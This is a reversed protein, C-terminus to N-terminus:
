QITLSVAGSSTVQHTAPPTTSSSGSSGGSGCGISLAATAMLVLGLCATLWIGRAALKRRMFGLPLLLIPLLIFGSAAGTVTEIFVVTIQYTGTSTTSSTAITVTNTASSYSCTAGAPLNLCTVSVSTVSSPVTVPYSATSGAAVTETTSTIIPATSGSSTSDVEFQWANSTGGGPAPTQVTIAITGAATIDAAPVQATLQTASVYTTTLASAGWYVTSSAIFGSGNVTLPLVAGGANTFAPSIGSIAPVPNTPISITFAATAVASTSYGTATAIAELTETSSVPIASTYVTSSTTPTTGNTTYYITAGATTDSITVTQAATYTGAVPSFTPTATAGIVNVVISQTVQTAAAYNANGAQNTAVVVTGVGTITLTSGSVTGPGSVVSFTVALGSTSSASLTIPSVGYTVPTTPATFTITQSFQNVVISQTVQMAASYNANGAQNAAVVVTGVGTITLTSGSVTGPGSVVSYIVANGSAGGTAVLTIPSVGYTVPSTPTTFTITQSFQNVVISQTVQMAASYNGNGAQNAAVVVTGAGTITLAAGSVTGPGSVVSFTVANGSAGGTAVLSIPSVGYVVPSTPATFTITQPETAVTFTATQTGLPYNGAAAQSVQLVVTGAGTLTVTSGSITAPGSVVSYTMAGSSNSTASVTFPADGYTHNPVTFTITLATVKRVRYNCTDAIYLSDLRDLTLGSPTCLEAMTASGGDGSYGEYGNGAITTITGNGAAVMRVAYPPNAIYLNGAGDVAVGMPDVEASTAPGGDGSAGTNGNGAVTTITGTNATVLRVRGHGTDAIYLDGSSDVAVDTPHLLTASTALGGDGLLSGTAGGAVTSINGSSASVMRIRNNYQDAIYLNGASDFALGEPGNLYANLAPGGDGQYGPGAGGAYQSITGTQATVKLIVCIEDDSIYLNGASDLAVHTPHWLYASTALGGNISYIGQYGLTGAVVSINGTGASVMWVVRNVPDAIYTNGSADVAVGDLSGFQVSTAPGGVGSSGSLGSGAVTGILKTPPPTITYTSSVVSSPLYGPAVAIARLTASGTVTISGHYATQQATSPTSGDFTVYIEAGPTTDTISVTQSSSYTGASVSFSPAAATTAPPLMSATVKRIRHSGSEAIYVNGTSDLTVSRPSCVGADNAPGGDGGFSTCTGVSGAYGIESTFSSQVGAVTNIIGTSATVERVAMNSTDAIYLNGAGDVAVGYPLNLLANTALGGDGSLFGNTQLASLRNYWFGAVTNIVGTSATVERIVDNQTDAIYLNGASDVAIGEPSSLEANTASGTDGWYGAMGNGAVTTIIGTSATVKRIRNALTAIYLNGASDLAIGTPHYLYASTAPGGDGLTYAHANGAYTTIIGTGAAVMRVLSNGSDAIYLNGASDMALGAPNSIQASSAPGNDGSYGAIGTGVITTITGTKADVRRVQNNGTDSIYLNGSSDMVTAWPANLSAATAPGGDGAYGWSNNGAITYIFSSMSKSLIYQASVPTSMAFGYAAVAVLTESTSVTIAGTYLSSSATPITGNTTYYIVTNPTADSLTVTQASSYVSPALSIVPPLPAPLNLTYTATAVTSSVYGTTAAIAQITNFHASVPIPGTYATSTSSPTSGDTTFYITAGPTSDTISVTQYTTYTGAAPSFVPAAAQASLSTTGSVSANDHSDGAYSADVLHPAAGMLSIGNATASVTETPETLLISITRSAFLDIQVLDPVGDGNMGAVVTIGRTAPNTLSLTFTGDGNGLLLTNSGYYFDNLLMDPRGDGNFDAVMIPGPELGGFAPSTAAQTFTGDGNGLMVTVSASSNWETSIALDLKGDGNFDAVAMAYAEGVLSLPSGLQAFTGDGKGILITVARGYESSVALDPIGDGNFDGIVVESSDTNIPLNASSATTFTGDGNGLLVTVIAGGYNAFAMDLKGDGNFDGVALTNANGVTIPSGAAQTFTGDGNGLLIAVQGTDTLVLDEKGDGNFDGVLISGYPVSFSPGTVTRYTGDGNGLFVTVSFPAYCNLVALDPIGDGNFDGAAEACFSSSSPSQANVWTLGASGTGLTASGVVGNSYSTDLFSVTGSPALVGGTETVTATLSYNGASGSQAITTTTPYPVSAAANVTLTSVASSSLTGGGNAVLVAKYTHVGAGPVFKFVATGSGTLDAAGLLHIDSCYSVSADCFNVQGSTLPTTGVKVTATLTVVSGAAVSTAAAGGSTVTLTTTTAPPIGWLLMTTGSVSVNYNGDGSYSADVMHQGAGQLSVPATASATETPKTLLVSMTGNYSSAVAVDPRGDGDFDAPAVSTPYTGVSLSSPTASFTGDGNGLLVIVAGNPSYNTLVLDPKGDGNFDAIAISVLCGINATSTTTQTFTGDGNGLFVMLNTSYFNNSANGVVLDLKGDGNLDAVVVSGSDSSSSVPLSPAATFTGDGKGLLVSATSGDAIVLDPIGDGNFDGVAVTGGAIPVTSSLSTAVFTGDGRGLLVNATTGSKPIVILDLNGDGNFDAVAISSPVIGGTLSALTANFTGDGRGLLIVVNGATDVVALDPIGDNNFDGVALATCGSGLAPNSSVATFTGDGNGLKITVSGNQANAIALDPIGDGNFDGIAVTAPSYVNLLQSNLWTLGPTSAGLTASGLLANGNNSDLFSFTGTPAITGGTETVTGTLSYNGWSGAKAISSVTALPYVTGTVTLASANSSSAAYYKTGSFVAKYSHSGIGPRLKLVATGANSLQATGLLHIDTCYNTSADCFNVQGATLITSGSRVSATLTVVSGSAVTTVAGGGSTVTMVSVTAPKSQASVAQWGVCVIGAIALCSAFIRFRKRLSLFVQQSRFPAVPLSTHIARSMSLM